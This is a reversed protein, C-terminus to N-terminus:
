RARGLTANARRAADRACRSSDEGSWRSVVTIAFIAVLAQAFSLWILALLVTHMNGSLGRLYPSLSPTSRSSRRPSTSSSCSRPLRWRWGSPGASRASRSPDVTRAAGPTRLLPNRRRSTSTPHVGRVRASSGPVSTAGSSDSRRWSRRRGRRRRLARPNGCPRLHRGPRRRQVPQVPPLRLHRHGAVPQVSSRGISDLSFCSCWCCRERRGCGFPLRRRAACGAARDRLLRPDPGLTGRERRRRGAVEAPTGAILCGLWAAAGAVFVIEASLVRSSCAGPPSSGSARSARRWGRSWWVATRTVVCRAARASSAGPPSSSPWSVTAAGNCIDRRRHRSTDPAPAALQVARRAGHDSHGFAEQSAHTKGAILPFAASNVLVYVICFYAM